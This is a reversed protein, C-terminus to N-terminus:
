YPMDKFYQLYKNLCSNRTKTYTNNVMRQINEQKGILVVLRKARTVATYLLNRTMIMYAATAVPIVVADFECGQSKHVTIAYSLTLASLESRPYVTVREDELQVTIEGTMKNIEIIKGIDGNFVGKGEEHHKIWEQKYNNVTHMVRDGVRFITEGYILETKDERPPNIMAQLNKNLNNVGAVGQRLPALVQVKSSDSGLYQPLRSSCLGLIETKIQEPTEANIYFFDSSQNDLCPMEGNNIRHANIAITAKEGTRYVQTLRIVPVVGSEIIDALVNGAGVSPLQDSDGIFVVKTGDLIKRLLSSMLLCDCMSVEDVIVMDQTIYSDRPEHSFKELCRHITMASQGTAEEVRKAARGTPALMLTSYDNAQNIYLIAKIVTTKGTGPGGTIVTVGGTVAQRIAAKQTEHFTIGQLTQYHEILDDVDTPQKNEHMLSLLKQAIAKEANFFRVLQLGQVGDMDVPVVVRDLCLEEVIQNFTPTLAEMNIRLLRCCKKLLDPLTVYTDGDTEASVKLIHVVGARVRFTGNYAVGLKKAMEDATIFGVGDITEILVYPNKAITAVTDKGYQQYIKLSLNLSIEFRQLWMMVSQMEHVALYNEGISKARAPSIGKVQALEAPNNRLIEMTQMGFHKIIKRATAPGVGTILGGGLFALLKAENDPPLLKIEKFAFQKGHKANNQFEGVLEYEAGVTVAPAIGVAHLNNDLRLVHYGSEENAFLISSVVGQIKM